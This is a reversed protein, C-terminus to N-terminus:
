IFLGPHTTPDYHDAQAPENLYDAEYGLHAECILSDWEAQNMRFSAPGYEMSMTGDTKILLVGLEMLPPSSISRITQVIVPDVNDISIRVTPVEDDTDKPLSASFLLGEYEEGDFTINETNSVIRLDENLDSHIIKLTAVVVDGTNEALMSQLAQPSLVRETM